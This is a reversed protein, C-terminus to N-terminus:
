EIIDKIMFLNNIYNFIDEPLNKKLNSHELPFIEPYKKFWNPDRANWNASITNFNTKILWQKNKFSILPSSLLAAILQQSSTNKYTKFKDDDIFKALAIKARLALNNKTFINELQVASLSYNKAVYELIHKDNTEIMFDISKSIEDKTFDM